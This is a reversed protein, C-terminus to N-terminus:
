LLSEDVVVVASGTLRGHRLDDIAQNVEELKYLNVKMEIPDKAVLEFFERGDQVTLNAVSEVRKENWLLNYDFSPIPTMYIGACVVIGGKKVAELARVVLSGESAFIIASDLLIDPKESSGGAWVAGLQKAFAQKKADGDRTFVYCEIGFYHAIQIVIHASSGFGYLGLTKPHGTKRLSRYGILGACLLPAAQIPSYHSPIPFCFAANAVCYDAFGGNKQYGTYIAHDCLNEKGEKCYDCEGCCGGLWPVGIQDGIKLTTVDEGLAIVIGVIQHGPIVNPISNPLESDIVHLDTRCIGCTLVRLLVEGKAPSPKYDKGFLLTHHEKDLYAFRGQNSD